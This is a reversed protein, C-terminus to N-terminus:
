GNELNHFFYNPASLNDCFGCSLLDIFSDIEVYPRGRPQSNYSSSVAHPHTIETPIYVKNSM